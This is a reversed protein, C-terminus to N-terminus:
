CKLRLRMLSRIEAPYKNIMEYISKIQTKGMRPKDIKTSSHKLIEKWHLGHFAGESDNTIKNQKLTMKELSTKTVSKNAESHYFQINLLFVGIEELLRM